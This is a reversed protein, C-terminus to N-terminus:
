YIEDSKIVKKYLSITKQAISEWSFEKVIKQKAAKSFNRKLEDSKFVRNVADALAIPDKPPVLLGTKEDDVVEAIGGVRSAVVVTECAMAELNIIGFPEYVSPCVFVQAHSYLENLEDKPLMKEILIIRSNNAAVAQIWKSLESTDAPGACIVVYINEDIKDIADVLYKIGKQETLRGVFLIYPGTIKYKEITKRSSTYQFEDTDIGNHIVEIKEEPVGYCNMIDVKMSNSVAIVKDAAEIGLREIWLSMEYGSSGIQQAKWPRLPELSHMTVILPKSYIKKAIFGAFFTYWTHCHIVDADIKEYVMNVCTKITDLTKLFKQDTKEFSDKINLEYGERVILREQEKRKGKFSRVEVNEFKALNRSLYDAHVGAGGYIFPPYENTM